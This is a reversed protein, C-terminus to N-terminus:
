KVHVVLHQVHLFTNKFLLTNFRTNYMNIINGKSNIGEHARAIAQQLNAGIAVLDYAQLRRFGYVGLVSLHGGCRFAHIGPGWVGLCAVPLIYAISLCDTPLPCEFPM